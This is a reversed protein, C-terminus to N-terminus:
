RDQPYLLLRDHVLLLLDDRADNTFDAVLAERPEQAGGKRGRFHQDVDFVRWHMENKWGDPGLSLIELMRTTRNDIAVLDAQGDGNLDGTALELLRVDPLDTEYSSLRRISGHGGGIRMRWFRQEGFLYLDSGVLQVDSLEVAPLEVTEKLEYTDNEGQTHIEMSSDESNLFLLAPAEDAKLKCFLVSACAFSPRSANFQNVMELEGNAGFRIARAFGPKTVIWEPKTDGDVDHWQLGAPGVEDLFGSALGNKGNPVLFSGDEKQLLLKVPKFPILLAVDLRGDQNADVARLGVPENRLDELEIKRAVWWGKKEESEPELKTKKGKPSTWTSGVTKLTGHKLFILRRDGEADRSFVLIEVGGDGDLDGTTVAGPTGLGQEGAPTIPKPFQFRGDQYHAIGLLQEDASSSILETTGDGDLDALVLSRAQSFGPCRVPAAFRGGRVNAKEKGPVDAEKNEGTQRYFFIQAGAPDSAVIDLLGDGDVDGTAFCVAKSDSTTPIAYAEIDAQFRDSGVNPRFEFEYLDVRHSGQRVATFVAEAADKKDPKIPLLASAPVDFKYLREPGFNGNAQQTQVRLSFGDEPALYILDLRDDRNVDLLRLSRCDPESTLMRQRLKLQGTKPHSEYIMVARETLVLIETRGDGDLDAAHLPKEVSSADKVTLRQSENWVLEEGHPHVQLHDARDLTILDMRGDANVDAAVAGLLHDEAPISIKDFRADELVPEWRDRTLKRPQRPEGPKRQLYLDLAAKDNNLVLLDLRKDGDLDAPQVGRASWSVKLVEPTTFGFNGSESFAFAPGFLWTLLVTLLRWRTASDIKLDAM